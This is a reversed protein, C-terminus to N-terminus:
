SSNNSKESLEINTDLNKNKNFIKNGERILPDTDDLLLKTYSYCILCTYFEFSLFLLGPIVFSVFRYENNLIFVLDIPFFTLGFFLDIFFLIIHLIFSNEISLFGRYINTCDNFKIYAKLFYYFSLFNFSGSLFINFIPSIKFLYNTYMYDFILKTFSFLCCLFTLLLCAKKLSLIKFAKYIPKIRLLFLFKIYDINEIVEKKPNEKTKNEVKEEKKKM